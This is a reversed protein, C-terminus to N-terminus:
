LVMICKRCILFGEGKADRFDAKGNSDKNLDKGAHGPINAITQDRTM